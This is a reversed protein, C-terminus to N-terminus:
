SCLSIHAPYTFFVFHLSNIGAHVIISSSLRRTKDYALGYFIGAIISLIIYLFGGYFHLVGFLSATILIHAYKIPLHLDKIYNQIIGRFIVEEAFSVFLINNLIFIIGVLPFKIDLTVYKFIYAPVLVSISCLLLYLFGTSISSLTACREKKYLGSFVILILAVMTKDFNLYLSFKCSINSLQISPDVLYNSFGPVYHFSFLLVCFLLGLLYLIDVHKPRLNKQKKSCFYLYCLYGFAIMATISFATIVETFFASIVALIALISILVLSRSFLASIVCAGLFLYSLIM